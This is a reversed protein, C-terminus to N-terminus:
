AGDERRRRKRAKYAHESARQCTRCYRHGGARIRTNAADFPHGRHCATKRANVGSFGSGRVLNTKHTVAELHDPRVCARHRCLHDLELGDPVPGVTLEYAVIHSFRCGKEGRQRIGWFLGYGDDDTAGTWIWCGETKEVKAWFRDVPPTTSHERM